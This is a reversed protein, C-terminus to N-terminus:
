LPLDSALLAVVAAVGLVALLAFMVVPAWERRALFYGPSTVVTYLLMGLGVLAAGAGNGAALSAGGVLLVVATLVEAVVHLRIEGPTRDPRRLAGQRISLVWWALMLVGVGMCYWAVVSALTDSSM